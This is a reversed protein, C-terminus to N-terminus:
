AVADEERHHYVEGFPEVGGERYLVGVEQRMEIMVKGDPFGEEM